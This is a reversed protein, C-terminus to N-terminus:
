SQPRDAQVTHEGIKWREVDQFIKVKLEWKEIRLGVKIM